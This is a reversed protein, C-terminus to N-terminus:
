DLKFKAFVYSGGYTPGPIGPNYFEYSFIMQSLKENKPAFGAMYFYREEGSKLIGEESERYRFAIEYCSTFDKNCAVGKIVANIFHNTQWHLKSLNKIKLKFFLIKSNEILIWFFLFKILKKM